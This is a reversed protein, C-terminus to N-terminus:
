RCNYNKHASLALYVKNKLTEPLKSAVLEEIQQTSYKLSFHMLLISEVNEFLEAHEVLENLHLHGKERAESISTEDDLYTCEMILLKVKLVSENGELQFCEFTTDGTFAIEPYEQQETVEIGSKKISAIENSPLGQYEGKLKSRVKWLIYGQSPITHVTPFLTAFYSKPLKIQQGSKFDEIPAKHKYYDIEKGHMISLQEAVVLLSQKLICPVYYTAPKMRMNSRKSAHHILGAVHDMHGHSIFVHDCGVSQCTSYGIDFAIKMGDTVVVMCTETGAISWDYIKFNGVDM